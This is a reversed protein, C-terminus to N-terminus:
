RSGEELLLGRLARGDAPLHVEHEAGGLRAALAPPTPVTTRTLPEVVEPFKWPHATALVVWPGPSEPRAREMARWAVAGHPDLVYGTSSHVRRICDRTQDDDVSDARVHARLRGVDEGYLWRIRELNSPDGVDMANSLSPLSPRPSFRGTEIWDAFARNRNTAALFGAAPM